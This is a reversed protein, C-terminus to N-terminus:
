ALERLMLCLLGTFLGLVVWRGDGHVHPLWAAVGLTAPFYKV